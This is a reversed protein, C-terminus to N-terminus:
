GNDLRIPVDVILARKPRTLPEVWPLLARDLHPEVRDIQVLYTEWPGLRDRSLYSPIKATNDM